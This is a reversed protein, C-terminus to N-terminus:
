SPWLSQVMAATFYRGPCATRSGKVDRHAMVREISPTGACIREVLERAARMQAATPLSPLLERKGMTHADFNGLLVIGISDSNGGKAHSTLSSLANCKYVAGRQDVAFHYALGRYGQAIHHRAFARLQAPTDSPPPAASHHIVIRRIRSLARHAWPRAQPLKGTLDIIHIAM